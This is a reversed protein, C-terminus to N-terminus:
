CFTLYLCRALAPTAYRLCLFCRRSTLMPNPPPFIMPPFSVQQIFRTAMRGGVGHKGTDFLTSAIGLECCRKLCTLGAIGGGIVAVTPNDPLAEDM